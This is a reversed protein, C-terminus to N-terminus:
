RPSHFATADSPLLASIVKALFAKSDFVFFAFFGDVFVSLVLVFQFAASGAVADVDFVGRFCSDHERKFALGVAGGHNRRVICNEIHKVSM